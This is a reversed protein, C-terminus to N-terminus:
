RPVGLRNRLAVQTLIRVGSVTEFRVNVLRDPTESDKWRNAEAAGILLGIMAGREMSKNVDDNRVYFREPQANPGPPYIMIATYPGSEGSTSVIVDSVYAGLIAGDAPLPAPAIVAPKPSTQAQASVSAFVAMAIALPRVILNAM